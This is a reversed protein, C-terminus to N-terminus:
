TKHKGMPHFIFIRDLFAEFERLKPWYEKNHRLREVVNVSHDVKRKKDHAKSLSSQDVHCSDKENKQEKTNPTAEEALTYKNTITFM